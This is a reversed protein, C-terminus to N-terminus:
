VDHCLVEEFSIEMCDKKSLEVYVSHLIFMGYFSTKFFLIASLTHTMQIVHCGRGDYIGALNCM